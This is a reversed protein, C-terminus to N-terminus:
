GTDIAVVVHPARHGPEGLELSSVDVTVLLGRNTAEQIAQNLIDVAARVAAAAEMNLRVEPSLEM